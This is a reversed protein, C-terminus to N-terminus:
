RWNKRLEAAWNYIVITEAERDVSELALVHKGDPSVDYDHYGTDTLYPMPFLVRNSTVSLPSEAITAAMLNAGSRYYLVRGDRSWEPETGVNVSVQVAPGPGPFPAVYTQANGSEDSIFALTRDDPSFSPDARTALGERVARPARDAGDTMPIVFIDRYATTLDSTRYMLWKGDHSFAGSYADLKGPVLTTAPGRGDAAIVKLVNGTSDLSRFVIRKGDASWSPNDDVPGSTLKSSSKTKVDIVWIDAGGTRGVSVAIKSGDPSWRPHAYPRTELGLPAAAGREDLLVLQSASVVRHYILSGSPSVSAKAAGGSRVLVDELVRRRPGLEGGASMAAAMVSGDTTVWLLRGDLAGLVTTGFEKTITARGTKRDLIGIRNATIRTPGLSIYAIFRRDIVRPGWQRSEGHATDPRSLVVPAGGDVPVAELRGNNSALLTDSDLWVLGANSVGDLPRVTVLAGGESPVKVIRNNVIAAVWKGDPSFTPQLAGDTGALVHTQMDDLGRVYLRPGTPGLGTYVLRRSDSSLTFPIAPMTSVLRESDPTVLPFRLTLADSAAPARRLLVGEVGAIVAAVIAIAGVVFMATRRRPAALLEVGRMDRLADGFEKATAWRDAPLKQLGRHVAAEVSPPVTGRMLSLRRPEETMLKAIVAQANSASHPPEGALMEYLLAALAYVDSRGDIERDGTAQEPSMYQPTGLSLGTQTMRAGGAHQVALAIGFDAVLAHTGNLLINEPKIDRHVIGLAHAASLADAVERAITVAVDVPLQKERTLRDRLSEGSVYPMVYYLLGDAEGSDLLTLIHPHQLRATTRIEALFRESGLAAGLDPHLVKIAVVRDHKVDHARFVTAMGGRGLEGDIQYREVLAVSLRATTQTTM